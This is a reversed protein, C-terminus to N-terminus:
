AKVKAVGHGNAKQKYAQAELAYKSGYDPVGGSVANFFTM